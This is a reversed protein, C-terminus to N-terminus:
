IGTMVSGDYYDGWYALKVIMRLVYSRPALALSLKETPGCAGTFMASLISFAPLQVTEPDLSAISTGFFKVFVQRVFYLATCHLLPAMEQPPNGGVNVEEMSDAMNVPAHPGGSFSLRAKTGREYTRRMIM